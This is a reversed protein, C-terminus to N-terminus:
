YHTVRHWEGVLSSDLNKATWRRLYSCLLYHTTMTETLSRYLSGEIVQRSMAPNDLQFKLHLVTFLM